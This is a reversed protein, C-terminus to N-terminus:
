LQLLKMLSRYDPVDLQGPTSAGLVKFFALDSGLYSGMIRTIIGLDDKSVTIQPISVQELRSRYSANLLTLVDHFSNPKVSVKAIDAGLDQAEKLKAMIEEESPTKDCDHYSLILKVEHNRAYESIRNRFGIESTLEIDVIDVLGTDVAAKIIAERIADPYYKIGGEELSRFTLLIPIDGTIQVANELSEIVYTTNELQEFYDIRWEILDPKVACIVELDKLFTCRDDSIINVCEIFKEGGFVLNRVPVKTKSQLRLIM